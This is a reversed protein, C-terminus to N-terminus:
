NTATIDKKKIQELEKKRQREIKRKETAEKREKEVKQRRAITEKKKEIKFLYNTEILEAKRFNSIAGIMATLSKVISKKDAKM